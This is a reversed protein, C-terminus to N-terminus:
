VARMLQQYLWWQGWCQRSLISPIELLLSVHKWVMDSLLLACFTAVAAAPRWTATLQWSACGAICTFLILCAHRTCPKTSGHAVCLLPRLWYIQDTVILKGARYVNALWWAVLQTIALEPFLAPCHAPWVQQVQCPWVVVNDMLCILSLGSLHHQNGRHNVRMIITTMSFGGELFNATLHAYCDTPNFVDSSCLCQCHCIDVPLFQLFNDVNATHSTLAVALVWVVNAIM